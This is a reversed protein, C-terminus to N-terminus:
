KATIKLSAKSKIVGGDTTITFVGKSTATARKPIIFVLQTATAGTRIKAVINGVKVVAGVLNRGNVVVTGVGRKKSSSQTFSKIVPVPTAITVQKSALGGPTTVVLTTKGPGLQPVTVKLQTDTSSALVTALVGRIRVKAWTLGSGVITLTSGPTLSSDSMSTVVPVAVIEYFDETTVVGGAVTLTIAGSTAGDPVVVTVRSDTLNTLQNTLDALVPDSDGDGDFSVSVLGGLNTGNISVISGARGMLSNMSTITPTAALSFIDASVATGGSTTVTIYGTTAADPVVVTVSSGDEAVVTNFDTLDAEAGNFAVSLISDLNTGFITVIDGPIGSTASLADVTPTPLVEFSDDSVAYGSFTTVSITGTTAGNPVAVTIATGDPNVSYNPDTLDADVPGISGDGNFTVSSVDTLHSGNITIVDGAKGSQDSLSDIVPPDSIIALSSTASTQNDWTVVVDAFGVAIGEPVIVLISVADCNTLDPIYGSGDQVYTGCDLVEAPVGGITVVPNNGFNVGMITVVDGGQVTQPDLLSILPEDPASTDTPTPSDTPVASDTPSPSESPTPTDTPTPGGITLGDFSATGNANTVSVLGSTAGDPVVVTLSTGDVSIEFAPNTLDALVGNFSVETAGALDTGYFTVVDGVNANSVSASTIAPANPLVTITSSASGGDTTVVVSAEGLPLDSPMTVTLLSVTTVVNTATAGGITVVSGLLHTGGIFVLDGGHASSPDVLDITPASVNTFTLPDSTATGGPTTVTVVGTVSEPVAVTIATDTLVTDAGTLDADQGSFSVSSVGTFNTGNIVVVDGAKVETVATGQLNTISTISPGDPLIEYGASTSGTTTTVTVLYTDSVLGTPITFSISSDSSVSSIADTVGSITVVGDLLGSGNIVVVDGSHAATPSFSDITPGNSGSNNIITLTASDSTGAGTTVTVSADGSALGDPVTFSVSTPSSTTVTADTGGVNVTPPNADIQLDTGTITVTDGASASSVDLGTIVPGPNSTSTPTPTVDPVITYAANGGNSSTDGSVLWISTDGSSDLPAYRNGTGVQGGDKAALSASGVIM